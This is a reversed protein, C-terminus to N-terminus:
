RLIDSNTSQQKLYDYDCDIADLSNAFDLGMGGLAGGLAGILLYGLVPGDEGALLGAVAGVSCGISAVLLTYEGTKLLGRKAARSHNKYDLAFPVQLNSGPVQAQLFHHYGSKRSLKIQTRGTNDVVALQQNTSSTIITGPVGQVTFTQSSSCSSLSIALLGAIVCFILKIAKM